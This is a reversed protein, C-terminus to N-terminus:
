YKKVIINQRLNHNHHYDYTCHVNVYFLFILLMPLLTIYNPKFRFYNKKRHDLM